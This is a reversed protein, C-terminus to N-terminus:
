TACAFFRGSIKGSRTLQARLIAAQGWTPRLRLAENIAEAAAPKNGSNAASLGLAYQAEALKPYPKALDAIAAAAKVKDGFRAFVAPLQPFIIAAKGPEALWRAVDQKTGDIGGQGGAIVGFAQRALASEPDLELWLTIADLASKTDRTQFAMEVARRAVRPDRTRQALELLSKFAQGTGGRQNSIEAILYQNIDREFKDEVGSARAKGVRLGEFDFTSVPVQANAPAGTPTSAPSPTQARGVAPFVVALALVACRLVPKMTLVGIQAAFFDIKYLLRSHYGEDPFGDCTHV